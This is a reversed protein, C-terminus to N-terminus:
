GHQAEEIMRKIDDYTEDCAYCHDDHNDNEDTYIVTKDEYSNEIVTVIHNVNILRSRGNYRTEIFGKM